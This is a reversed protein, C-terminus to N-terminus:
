RSRSTERDCNQLTEEVFSCDSRELWVTATVRRARGEVVAGRVLEVILLPLHTREHARVLLGLPLRGIHDHVSGGVVVNLVRALRRWLARLGDLGGVALADIGLEVAVRGVALVKALPRAVLARENAGAVLILHRVHWELAQAGVLAVVQRLTASRSM